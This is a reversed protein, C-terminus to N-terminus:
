LFPIWHFEKSPTPSPFITLLSSRMDMSTLLLKKRKGINNVAIDHGGLITYLSNPEPQGFIQLFGSMLHEVFLKAPQM